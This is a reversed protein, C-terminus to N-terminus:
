SDTGCRANNVANDLYRFNPDDSSLVYATGRLNDTNTQQYSM